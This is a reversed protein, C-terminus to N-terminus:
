GEGMQGLALQGLAEAATDAARKATDGRACRQNGDLMELTNTECQVIFVLKGIVNRLNEVSEQLTGSEPDMVEEPFRRVSATWEVCAEVIMSDDAPGGMEGDLALMADRRLIRLPELEAKVRELEAVLPARAARLFAVAFRYDAVGLREPKIGWGAGQFGAVYAALADREEVPDREAEGCLWCMEAGPALGIRCEPNKCNTESM